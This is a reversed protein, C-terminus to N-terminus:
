RYSAYLVQLVCVSLLSCLHVVHFNLFCKILFNLFCQAQGSVYVPQGQEVLLWRKDYGKRGIGM